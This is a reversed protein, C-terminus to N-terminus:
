APADELDGIVLDATRVAYWVDQSGGSAWNETLVVTAHGAGSGAYRLSRSAPVNQARFVPDADHQDAWADLRADLEPALYRARVQEPTLDGQGLVAQRYAQFFADVQAEARTERLFTAAGPPSVAEHATAQGAPATVLVVAAAALAALVPRLKM